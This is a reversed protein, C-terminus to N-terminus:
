NSENEIKNIKKQFYILESSSKNYSGAEHKLKSQFHLWDQEGGKGIDWEDKDNLPRGGDESADDSLGDEDSTEM